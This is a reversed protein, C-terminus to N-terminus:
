RATTSRSKLSAARRSVEELFDAVKAEIEAKIQLARAESADNFEQLRAHLQDRKLRLATLADIEAQVNRERAGAELEALRANAQQVKSNIRDRDAKAIAITDEHRM